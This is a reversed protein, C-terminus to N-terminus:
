LKMSHGMMKGDQTQNPISDERECLGQFSTFSHWLRERLYKNMKDEGRLVPFHQQGIVDPIVKVSVDTADDIMLLAFQEFGPGDRVVDM